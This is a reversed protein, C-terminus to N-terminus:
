LNKKIKIVVLTIDDAPDRNKRFRQVESVVADIIKKSGANSEERIIECVRNKGFMDGDPNQTEWIGDTGLLIIQGPKLNSKVNQAYQWEADVGLAIGSGRLEEFSDTAPDYM